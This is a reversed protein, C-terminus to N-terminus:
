VCIYEAVNLAQAWGCWQVIMRMGVLSRGKWLFVMLLNFQIHLIRKEM